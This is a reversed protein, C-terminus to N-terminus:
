CKVKSFKKLSLPDELLQVNHECSAKKVVNHAKEYESVFQYIKQGVHRELIKVNKHTNLIWETFLACNVFYVLIINFNFSHYAM